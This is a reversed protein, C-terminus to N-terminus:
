SVVNRVVFYRRRENVNVLKLAELHVMDNKIQALHYRKNLKEYGKIIKLSDILEATDKEGEAALIKLIEKRRKIAPATTGLLKANILNTYISDLYKNKTKQEFDEVIMITLLQPYSLNERLRQYFENKLEKKLIQYYKLAKAAYYTTYYQGQKGNKKLSWSGEKLQHKVLFNIGKEIKENFPDDCLFMLALLTIATGYITSENAITLRSSPWGGDELQQKELYTRAVQLFPQSPDEGAYILTLVVNSTFSIESEKYTEDLSWGVNDKAKTSKLWQRLKQFNIKCAYDKIGLVTNFNVLNSTHPFSPWYGKQCQKSFILNVLQKQKQIFLPTNSYSLAMLHYALIDVPENEIIQTKFCFNIAKDIVKSNEKNGVLFLTRIAQATLVVPQLYYQPGKHDIERKRTWSGEKNQRKILFNKTKKLIKNIETNTVM